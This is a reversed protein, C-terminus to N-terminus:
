SYPIDRRWVIGGDAPDIRVVSPHHLGVYVAGGDAVVISARDGVDVPEAAARGTAPDRRTLVGDYTATWLAGDGLAVLDAPEVVRLAARGTAPDIRTLGDGDAAWVVGDEAALGGLGATVEARPGAHEGTRADLPWVYGDGGVWATGGDVALGIARAPTRVSEMTVQDGSVAWLRRGGAVLLRPGRFAVGVIYAQRRMRAREVEDGDADLVLALRGSALGVFGDEEDIATLDYSRRQPLVATSRAIEGTAPDLRHVNRGQAV